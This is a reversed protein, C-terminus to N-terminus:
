PEARFLVPYHYAGSNNNRANLTNLLNQEVASNYHDPDVEKMMAPLGQPLWQRFDPGTRWVVTETVTQHRYQFKLTRSVNPLETKEPGAVNGDPEVQLLQEHSLEKGNSDFPDFTIRIPQKDPPPNPVVRKPALRSGGWLAGLFAVVSLAWIGRPVCQPCFRDAM